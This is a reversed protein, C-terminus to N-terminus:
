KEQATSADAQLHQVQVVRLEHLRDPFGLDVEGVGLLGLELVHRHRVEQEADFWHTAYEVHEPTCIISPGNSPGNTM